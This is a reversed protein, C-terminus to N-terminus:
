NGMPPPPPGHMGRGRHQMMRSIITDFEEKQKDDLLGRLTSFHQYESNSLAKEDQAIQDILADKEKVNSAGQLSKLLSKKLKMKEQFLAKNKEMHQTMEKDFAQKQNENLDLLEEFIQPPHNGHMMGKGHKWHQPHCNDGMMPPGHHRGRLFMTSLLAINLIILIGISGYLLYEKKM